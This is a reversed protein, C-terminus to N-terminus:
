SGGIAGDGLAANFTATDQVPVSPGPTVGAVVGGLWNATNTWNADGGSSASTGLWTSSAAGALRPLFVATLCLTVSFCRHAVALRVVIRDEGSLSMPCSM